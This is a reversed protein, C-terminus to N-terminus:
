ENERKLEIITVEGYCNFRVPIGSVGCGKSTYGVMKGYKWIGKVFKKGEFQRRIVPIGGPLCIQGGHTHGCLYLDYGNDEALKYLESTHVMAIKFKYDLSKTELALMAQETYYKFPDDTGTILIREGAREIEISENVLLVAGSEEEYQSMMYTDHNGLVAFIGDEARIHRSLIMFPKMIRSFSGYAGKRYDGTMLCIDYKLEKVKDIILGAFGPISDLHLDSLHLIRYGDFSKPLDKFKLTIHNPIIHKANRYGKKYYGTIKLAIVFLKLLRRFLTWRSKSKKGSQKRKYSDPEQISRNAAWIIRRNKRKKKDSLFRYM